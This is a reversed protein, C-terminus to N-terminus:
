TGVWDFFINNAIASWTFWDHKAAMEILYDVTEIKPALAQGLRGARDIKRTNLGYESAVFRQVKAQVAADVILKQDATEM